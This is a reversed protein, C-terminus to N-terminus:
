LLNKKSSKENRSKNEGKVTIYILKQSAFVQGQTYAM